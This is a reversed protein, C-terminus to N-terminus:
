SKPKKINYKNFEKLLDKYLEGFDKEEITHVLIKETAKQLYILIRVLKKYHKNFFIEGETQSTLKKVSDEAIEETLKYRAYQSLSMCQDEAKKELFIKESDPLRITVVRMQTDTM